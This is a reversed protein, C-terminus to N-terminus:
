IALMKKMAATSLTKRREIDEDDGLLSGVKKVKRWAEDEKKKERKIDTYETKDNNVLLHYKKLIQQVQTVDKHKVMSIFDVDDAYAVEPPLNEEKNSLDRIERLAAELYIIFLVPSLSDGQPTGVNSLLPM